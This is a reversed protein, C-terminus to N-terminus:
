VAPEWTTTKNICELQEIRHINQKNDVLPSGPVTDTQIRQITNYKKIFMYQHSENAETIRALIKLQFREPFYTAELQTFFLTTNKIVTYKRCQTYTGGAGQTNLLAQPPGHCTFSYTLTHFIISQTTVHFGAARM